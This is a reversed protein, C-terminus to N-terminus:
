GGSARPCRAVGRVRMPVRESHSGGPSALVQDSYGNDNGGHGWATGCPLASRFVGLGARPDTGTGVTQEMAALEPRRVVEGGLLASFFAALDHTTSVIGVDGTVP